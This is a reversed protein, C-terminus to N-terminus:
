YSGNIKELTVDLYTVLFDLAEKYTKEREKIDIMESNLKELEIRLDQIIKDKETM